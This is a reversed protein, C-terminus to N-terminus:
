SSRRRGMSGPSGEFLDLLYNELDEATYKMYREAHRGSELHSRFRGTFSRYAPLLKEAISIRLEERLQPNPVLWATQNRYVDEFASNFSKFREKLADKSVKNSFNGAISIGEDRLCSLVKNWAARQYNTAHQRVQGSHKRLWDDGLLTRLESSKVKQVIYHVNNMLFLHSLSLDKYLKSKGDLNSELLLTISLLRHALPSSSLSDGQCDDESSDLFDNSIRRKADGKEKEKGENAILHKLTDTYDFLFRIYNMVYRTLPHVAGGPIPTRSTERQIANEFEVFTGKVAEGLRRLIGLAEVRISTSVSCEDSFISNIDPLLDSLCEYMDLIRFLREPSRRSIAVAESFNLLQKIGGKATEVFTGDECGLEGFIQECLHKESAMVVGVAIKAAQNWKKMKGELCEWDMKQIEEISLKEIGLRYLSEELVHRRVCIYVQCCEETYGCAVMREAIDKLAPIVEPAILDLIVNVNERDGNGNVNAPSSISADDVLDEEHTSSSCFSVRSVPGQNREYLREAEFVGSEQDLINRFELELRTMAIHLVNQARGILDNGGGNNNDNVNEPLSRTALSEMLRHVEDVAHLYSAAEDPAGEWIMSQRAAESSNMDWRLVMEEAFALREEIESRAQALSQESMSSFRNDFSSFIKLMDNTMNATTGLSRVIHQAAAIVREDGEVATM